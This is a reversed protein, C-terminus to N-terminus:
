NEEDSSWLPQPPAAELAKRLLAMLDRREDSALGQLVADEVGAALARAKDVTRRGKATIVVERARRDKPHPRRKALGGRELDDILGVMTSPDIGIAAGIEQQIMAERTLLLNLVAFLATTLGISEFAAATQTHTARWLRFFLQGAFQTVEENTPNMTSMVVIM